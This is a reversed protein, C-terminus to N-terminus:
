NHEKKFSRKVVYDGSILELSSHLFALVQVLFVNYCTIISKVQIICYRKKRSVRKGKWHFKCQLKFYTQPVTQIHASCISFRRVSFFYTHASAFIYIVGAFFFSNEIKACLKDHQIFFFFNMMARVNRQRYEDFKLFQRGNFACVALASLLGIWLTFNVM